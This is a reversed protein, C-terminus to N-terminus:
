TRMAELPIHGNVSTTMLTVRHEKVYSISDCVAKLRVSDREDPLSALLDIANVGNM